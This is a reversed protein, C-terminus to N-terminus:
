VLGVTRTTFNALSPFVSTLQSQPMGLWTMLDAAVADSPIQPVWYGRGGPDSDDTGKLILRPFKEGYLRGGRVPNGMVMWHNGWAHDSGFGAAPDLTRGFESMVLVVVDNGMGVANVSQDFAVLARSLERLQRDQNQDNETVETYRQNAHSDFNGWQISFVQRSAGATKYFHALRATARLSRGIENDDFSGVPEPVKQEMTALERGDLFTGKFTRAYEAETPNRSQLRSLAELMQTQANSNDLLDAGAFWRSSNTNASVIRSRRGMVVTAAGNRGVGVLPAKMGKDALAEMARGGWGSPDEGGMWGQVYQEQEPHSFLFPPVVARGSLVDAVTTPRVLPGTNVVFALKAQNFLPMLPASASNLGLQHGLHSASFPVLNDKKLAISERSKRYDTFAGDMPVLLDNGDNGGRLFVVVVARYGSVSALAGGFSQLSLGTALGIGSAAAGAGLFRRRNM